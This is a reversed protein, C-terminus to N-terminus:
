RVQVMDIAVMSKAGTRTGAVRVTLTHAGDKLTPSTYAVYNHLVISSQTSVKQVLTGDLYIRAPGGQPSDLVRLSM